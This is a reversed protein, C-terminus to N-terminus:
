RKVNGYIALKQLNVTLANPIWLRYANFDYRVIGAEINVSQGYIVIRIEAFIDTLLVNYVPKERKWARVPFSLNGWFDM